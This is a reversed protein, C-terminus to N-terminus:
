ADSILKPLLIDVLSPKMSFVTRSANRPSLVTRMHSVRALQQCFAANPKTILTFAKWTLSQLGQIMAVTCFVMHAHNFVEVADLFGAHFFEQCLFTVFPTTYRAPRRNATM